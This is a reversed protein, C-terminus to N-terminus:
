SVNVTVTEITGDDTNLDCDHVQVVTLDECRYATRDLVIDGQSSCTLVAPTAVLSVAQPGVPVSHGRIEIRYFGAPPNDIVVQEINNIKDRM